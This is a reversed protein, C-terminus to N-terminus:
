GVLSRVDDINLVNILTNPPVQLGWGIGSAAALVWWYSASGYLDGALTDLRDRETTVITKEISLTGNRIANRLYIVAYATSLGKRDYSYGDRKYRSFEAM